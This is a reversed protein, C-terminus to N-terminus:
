EHAKAFAMRVQMKRAEHNRLNRAADPAAPRHSAYGFGDESCLLVHHGQQDDVRYQGTTEDGPGYANPMEIGGLVCHDKIWAAVQFRGDGRRLSALILISQVRQLAREGFAIGPTSDRPLLQLGFSCWCEVIGSIGDQLHFLAVFGDVESERSVVDQMSGCRGLQCLPDDQEAEVFFQLGAAGGFGGIVIYAVVPGEQLLNELCAVSSRFSIVSAQGCHARCRGLVEDHM